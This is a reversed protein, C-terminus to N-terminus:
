DLILQNDIANQRFIFTLVYEKPYDNAKIFHYIASIAHSTSTNFKKIKSKEYFEFSCNEKNSIEVTVTGIMEDENRGYEYTIFGNEIKLFRIYTMM